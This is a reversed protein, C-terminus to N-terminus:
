QGGRQGQGEQEGGAPRLFLGSLDLGSGLGVAEGPRHSFGIAAVWRDEVVRLAVVLQLDLLRHVCEAKLRATHHCINPGAATVEGEVGRAPHSRAAEDVRHVNLLAHEVVNVVPGLPLLDAVEAGHEPLLRVRLQRGLRNIHRHDQLSIM